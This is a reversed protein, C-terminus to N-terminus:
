KVDPINYGVIFNSWFQYKDRQPPNNSFLKLQIKGDSPSFHQFIYKKISVKLLNYKLQLM